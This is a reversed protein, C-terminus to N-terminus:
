TNLRMWDPDKFGDKCCKMDDDSFLLKKPGCWPWSQKRHIGM